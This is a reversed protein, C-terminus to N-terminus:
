TCNKPRLSAGSLPEIRLGKNTMAYPPRDPDWQVHELTPLASVTNYSEFDELRSNLLGCCAITDRGMWAFISEDDYKNILELQLRMLANKGEGYLLPMQVDFLGLLSYARDEIRTTRRRSAWSLIQANLIQKSKAIYFPFPHFGEVVDEPISTADSMLRGLGQRSGITHKWSKEIFILYKPSLLEQLTWARTFWESSM